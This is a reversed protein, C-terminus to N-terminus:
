SQPRGPADQAEDEEEALRLAEGEIAERDKEILELLETDSLVELQGIVRKAGITINVEKVEPAYYGCMKGIERWGAIQVAPDAMLKAQDIASLFGELVMQRSAVISAEYKKHLHHVAEKIRPNHAMRGAVGNDGGKGGEERRSQSAYGALRAAMVSTKGESM